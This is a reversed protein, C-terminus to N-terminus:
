VNLLAAQPSPSMKDRGRQLPPKVEPFAPSNKARRVEAQTPFHADLDLCRLLARSAPDKRKEKKKEGRRKATNKAAHM